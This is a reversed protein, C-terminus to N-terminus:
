KKLLVDLEAMSAYPHGSHESLAVFRLYRGKASKRFSIAQREVTNALEGRHVPAGWKAPDDSVYVEFDKIHGNVMDQRSTCIIGNLEVSPAFEIVIEHPMPPENPEWQTHWFTEPEGDLVNAAVNGHIVDESDTRLVKAGLSSIASPQADKLVKLLEAESVTPLDSAPLSLYAYLSRLLQRAEPRADIDDWLNFTCVMLRGKGVGVEFLSGLRDNRNFKDIPQVIPKVAPLANLVAARSKPLLRAWQWDTYYDTPFGKLAPHAPDCLMGMTGPEKEFMVPSWYAGFFSGIRSSVLNKATARFLVTKGERLAQLAESAKDTITLSAPATVQKSDPYVWIDWQNTAKLASVSVTLTLKAPAKVMALSISVTGVDSLKQEPLKDSLSGSALLRTGQTLKWDVPGSVAKGGFNAVQVKASFTESPTYVRKPFLALPVVSSCFQRFEVPKVFGKSDWFPDLIGVLATGQGPFDHLDLLQFGGHGPTRLMAEIEDKYLLNCLKGSAMMFADAQELLGNKALEDRVMDFNKEQLVGTYKAQTDLKPFVCWQGIEHSVVPVPEKAADAAYNGDTGPGKPGRQLGVRYQDSATPSWATSGTFLHRPDHKQGKAILNGMWVADGQLENGICFMGFSPHNGYTDLIRMMEDNIFGDAPADKGVSFSWLPSEVHFIVGLQDAAEFAAEPPCWSHFRMHNLGYSKCIRLIRKWSAVDTPPYGTLPFICCELTGRLFLDKGNWQLRKNKVSIERLGVQIAKSDTQKGIRVAAVLPLRVPNFESWLPANEPLDFELEVSNQKPLFSTEVTKAQSDFKVDIKGEVSHDLHSAVAVKIRLKKLALNPYAQVSEVFVPSTAQLEIRGVVGNWNTQTQETIAHAWEGINFKVSNDVRLTLTHKGPKLDVGLEHVHPVCLSDEMGAPQGDLWVRTEWHCRELFLSVRKGSWRAPIEIEKQYWAAGTYKLKRSLTWFDPRKTEREGKGNEDLSGPLRVTEDLKKNFWQASIGANKPDLKLSWEGALPQVNGSSSGVIAM